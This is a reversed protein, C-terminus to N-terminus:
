CIFCGILLVVQRRPAGSATYIRIQGCGNLFFIGSNNWSEAFTWSLGGIESQPICTKSIVTPIFPHTRHVFLVTFKDDGVLAM